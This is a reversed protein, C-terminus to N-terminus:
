ESSHLVNWSLLEFRLVEQSYCYEGPDLLCGMTKSFWTIFQILGGLM